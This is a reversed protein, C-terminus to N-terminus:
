SKRRMRMGYGLLLIGSLAAALLLLQKWKPTEMSGCFGEACTGNKRSGNPCFTKPTKEWSSQDIFTDLTWRSQYSKGGRKVVTEPNDVYYVTVGKDNVKSINGDQDGVTKEELKCSPFGTGFISRMIPEPDFAAQIDEMIGPALGKLPPMGADSLGKSLKAGLMNGTPIGDIYTYMEAGNSCTYGTKMWVQVGIPKLGMGADLATSSAGFGITDAYYAVGGVAKWVSDLSDGNRVGIDSPLPIAEAYSYDPGFIGPVNSTVKPSPLVPDRMVPQAM